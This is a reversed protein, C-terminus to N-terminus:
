SKNKLAKGIWASLIPGFVGAMAGAFGVIAYEQWDGALWSSDVVLNLFYCMFATFTWVILFAVFLLLTKKM